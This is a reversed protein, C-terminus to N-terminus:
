LATCHLLGGTQRGAGGDRGARLGPLPRRQMACLLAICSISPYDVLRAQVVRRPIRGHLGARNTQTVTTPPVVVRASSTMTVVSLQSGDPM